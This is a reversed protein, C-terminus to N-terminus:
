ASRAPEYPRAELWADLDTQKLRIESKGYTYAPLDGKNIADRILRGMKDGSKVYAAAENVTLWVTM